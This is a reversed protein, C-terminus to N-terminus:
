ALSSTWRLRCVEFVRSPPLACAVSQPSSWHGGSSAEEFAGTCRGADGEATAPQEIRGTGLLGAPWAEREHDVALADLTDIDVGVAQEVLGDVEHACFGRAHHRRGFAGLLVEDDDLLAERGHIRHRDVHLHEGDIREPVALVAVGGGLDDLHLILLQRLQAGCLRVAEGGESREGKLIGIEGHLLELIGHLLLAQAAGGDAAAHQAFVEGFGLNWGTHAM